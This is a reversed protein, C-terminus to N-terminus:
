LNLRYGGEETVLLAPNDASAEMKQRLRYIHTELTHTDIGEQYRWVHKLLEDRGVAPGRSRKALYVLIDTEKDTLAIVEQGGRQLTKEQPEFEYPGIAFAELYLVPEDLMQQAQRLIAGLRQPRASDLPLSPVGAPLDKPAGSHIVLDPEADSGSGLILLGKDEAFQQLLATELAAPLNLLRIKSLDKM